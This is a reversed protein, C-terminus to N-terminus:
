VLGEFCVIRKTWSELPVRKRLILQPTKGQASLDKFVQLPKDQVGLDREVRENGEGQNQSEFEIALSYEDPSASHNFMRLYKFLVTPTHNEFTLGVARNRFVHVSSSTPQHAHSHPSPQKPSQLSTPSTGSPSAQTPRRELSNDSKLRRHGGRPGLRSPGTHDIWRSLLLRFQSYALTEVTDGSWSERRAAPTLGDNFVTDSLWNSNVLSRGRHKPSEQDRESPTGLETSHSGPISDAFNLEDINGCMVRSTRHRRKQATESDSPSNVQLTNSKQSLDPSDVLIRPIKEFKKNGNEREIESEQEEMDNEEEAGLDDLAVQQTIMLSQAILQDGEDDLDESGKLSVREVITLTTLMLLLTAKMSELTRRYILVKSRQFVWKVRATWAIVLEEPTSVSERKLGNVLDQIERFVRQCEAMIAEAAALATLSYRAAKAKQLTSDLQRLVSCFLSIESAVIRVDRAASGVADAFQYLILSLKAGTTAVGIISAILGIEAM